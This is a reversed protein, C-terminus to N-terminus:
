SEVLEPGMVEFHELDLKLGRLERRKRAITKLADQAAVVANIAAREPVNMGRARLWLQRAATPRPDPERSPAHRAVFREAVAAAAKADVARALPRISGSARGRPALCGFVLYTGDLLDCMLGTAGRDHTVYVQEGLRFWAREASELALQVLEEARVPDLDPEQGSFAYSCDPCASENRRLVAGCKPCDKLAEFDERAETESGDISPPCDLSRHRTVAAAYDFIVCDRKDIDPYQDKLAVRLGRGVIQVFTSRHACPRLVVVAGVRACDFGESLALPNALVPFEGADFANLTEDRDSASMRSHYVRADVGAHKYAEVLDEAHQITACFAVLGQGKRDRRNLFKKRTQRVVSTNIEETNLLKAADSASYEGAVTKLQAVGRRIRGQIADKPVLFRYPTLYGNRILSEISPGEIVRDLPALPRGDARALTASLGVVPVDPPLVDIINDYEDSGLRHAEDILVGAWDREAVVDLRVSKAASQRMAMVVQGDWSDRGGGVQSCTLGLWEGIKPGNQVALAGRDQLILIQGEARALLRETLGAMVATKGGGTPLVVGPRHGAEICSVAQEVIQRQYPRLSFGAPRPKARADEAARSKLELM